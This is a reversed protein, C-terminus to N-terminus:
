RVGQAENLGLTQELGKAWSLASPIPGIETRLARERKDWEAQTFDAGALQTSYWRTKRLIAGRFSAGSADASDFVADTLDAEDFRVGRLDTETFDIGRLDAGALNLERAKAGALLMSRPDADFKERIFQQVYPKYKEAPPENQKGYIQVFHGYPWREEDNDNVQWEATVHPNGHPDRLSFIRSLGSSVQECYSGVCHQMVEGEAKLEPATRLEQVTYGDPFAYVVEGQPVLSTKFEHEAIAELAQALTVRGLDRKTERAWMAIATGKAKLTEMAQSYDNVSPAAREALGAILADNIEEDEENEPTLDDIFGGTSRARLEDDGGVARWLDVLQKAIWPVLFDNENRVSSLSDLIPALMGRIKAARDKREIVAGTAYISAEEAPERLEGTELGLLHMAVVFTDTVPITYKPWYTKLVWELRKAPANPTLRPM